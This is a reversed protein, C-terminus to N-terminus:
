EDLWLCLSRSEDDGDNAGSELGGESVARSRKGGDGDGRGRSGSLSWIGLGGNGRVDNGVDGGGGGDCVCESERM